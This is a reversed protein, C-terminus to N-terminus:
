IIRLPSIRYGKPLLRPTVTLRGDLQFKRFSPSRCGPWATGSVACVDTLVHEPVPLGRGCIVDLVEGSVFEHIQFAPRPSFYILRPM